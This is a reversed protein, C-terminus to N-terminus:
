DAALGEHDGQQNLENPGHDEGEQTGGDRVRDVPRPDVTQGQGDPNIGGGVDRTPVAKTNMDTNSTPLLRFDCRM